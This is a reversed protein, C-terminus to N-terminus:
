VLRLVLACYAKLFPSIFSLSMSAMRASRGLIKGDFYPERASARARTLGGARGEKKSGNTFRTEPGPVLAVRTCAHHMRTANENVTPQQPGTDSSHGEHFGAVAR